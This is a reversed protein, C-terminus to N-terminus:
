HVSDTQENDHEYPSHGEKAPRWHGNPLVITCLELGHAHEVHFAHRGGDHPLDPSGDIPRIPGPFVTGQGLDAHLQCEQIVLM